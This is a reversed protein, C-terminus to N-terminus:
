NPPKAQAETTSAPRSPVRVSFGLSFVLDNQFLTGTPGGQVGSSLYPSFNYVYDELGARIALSPGARLRAGMGVVFGWGTTHLLYPPYADGGHAVAGVGGTFYISATAARPKVSVLVSVGGTVVHAPLRLVGSAAYGVSGEVAVRTSLWGTVRAGVVPATAHKTPSGCSLGSGNVAGVDACTFDAGNMADATPAYGGGYATVEVQGACPTTAVAVGFAVLSAGRTLRARIVPIWREM